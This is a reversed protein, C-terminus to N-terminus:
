DNAKGSEGELWKMAEQHRTAEDVPLWQSSENYTANATTVSRGDYESLAVLADEWAEFHRDALRHFVNRVPGIVWIEIGQFRGLAFGFEVERGGRPTEDLTDLLLMDASRIEALDRFALKKYWTEQDMTEPVAVEDLWTSVVEHGLKWISDRIPRLRARTDFFGALYVKM